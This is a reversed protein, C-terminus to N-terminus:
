FVSCCSRRTSTMHFFFNFTSVGTFNVKVESVATKLSQNCKVDADLTAVAANMMNAVCSCWCAQLVFKAVPFGDLVRMFWLCVVIYQSVYCLVADFLVLWLWWSTM